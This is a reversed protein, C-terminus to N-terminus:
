APAAVRKLVYGGGGFTAAGALLEGDLFTILFPIGGTSEDAAASAPRRGALGRALGSPTALPVTVSAAKLGQLADLQPQGRPLFAPAILTELLPSANVGGVTAARFQLAIRSASQVQFAATVTLTFSEEQGGEGGGLLPQLARFRVINEVVGRGGEAGADWEYRQFVDGVEAPFPLRELGLLSLVDASDTYM